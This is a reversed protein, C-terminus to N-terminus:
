LISTPNGISDLLYIKSDKCGVAIAQHGLGYPNIKVAYIYSDFITVRNVSQYNGVTRAYLCVTLDSSGTVLLDKLADVCRVEKEHTHLQQYLHYNIM